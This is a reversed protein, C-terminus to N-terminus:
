MGRQRGYHKAAIARLDDDMTKGMEQNTLSSKVNVSAAKKAEKAKQEAEKASKEQEAKQQDKIVQSRINKDAWTAMDYAEQLSSAADFQLLGAMAKRVAEYHPKGKAFENLESALVAHETEQAKRQQATLYSKLQTVEGKLAQVTPDVQPAPQGSNIGSLDVGYAQAINQIATQPDTALWQEVAFMRAIADAPQLNNREYVDKFQELTKQVPEYTKREQGARSIAEHVERERQSLYEQATRPISTWLEKKDAVWSQPVDIGPIEQDTKGDGTPTTAEPAKGNTPPADARPVYRGLEDREPNNKMWIDRLGTDMDPVSPTERTTTETTTQPAATETSVTSASPTTETTQLAAETM